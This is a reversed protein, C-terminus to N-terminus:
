KWGSANDIYDKIEWDKFANIEKVWEHVSDVVRSEKGNYPPIYGKNNLTM